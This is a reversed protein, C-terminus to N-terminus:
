EQTKLLLDQYVNKAHQPDPLKQMHAPLANSARPPDPLKQMHAPLAFPVILLRCDLQQPPVDQEAIKVNLVLYSAAGNGVQM